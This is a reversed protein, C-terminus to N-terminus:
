DHKEGLMIMEQVFKLNRRKDIPCLVYKKLINMYLDLSEDILDDASLSAIKGSTIPSNGMLQSYIDPKLILQLIVLGTLWIDYMKAVSLQKSNQIGHMNEPSMQLVKIYTKMYPDKDFPVINCQQFKNTNLDNGHIVDYETLKGCGIGFNTFKIQLPKDEPTFAVDYIEMNTPTFKDHQSIPINENNLSNDYKVKYDDRSLNSAAPERLEILISETDLQMHSVNLKHFFFVAELIEKSIYKVLLLRNAKSFDTYSMLKIVNTLTIGNFVPFLSIITNDRIFLKTCPNIYEQIIPHSQITKLLGLERKLQKLYAQNYNIVKCIYESGSDDARVKFLDGNIGQGLYIPNSFASVDNLEMNKNNKAQKSHTNMADNLLNVLQVPQINNTPQKGIVKQTTNTNLLNYIQM